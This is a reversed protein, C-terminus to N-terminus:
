FMVTDNFEFNALVLVIVLCYNDNGNNTNTQMKCLHARNNGLTAEKGDLSNCASLLIIDSVCFLICKIKMKREGTPINPLSVIPVITPRFLICSWSGGEKTCSGGDLYSIVTLFFLM